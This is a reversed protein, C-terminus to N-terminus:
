KNKSYVIFAHIIGPIVCLLTLVLNIWFDTDIDGKILYVAVPPLLICLIM